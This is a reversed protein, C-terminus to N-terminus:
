SAKELMVLGSYIIFNSLTATNLGTFGIYTDASIDPIVTPALLTASIFGGAVGAGGTTCNTNDIIATTKDISLRHQAATASTAACPISGGSLVNISSHLRVRISRALADNAAADQAFTVFQLKDGPEILGGPVLNASSILTEIGAPTLTFGSLNVYSVLPIIRGVAKWATGNNRWLSGGIGADTAFFLTGKPAPTARMEAFTGELHKTSNIIVASM